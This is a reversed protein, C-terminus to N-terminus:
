LEGFRMCRSVTRYVLYGLGATAISIGVAVYTFTLVYPLNLVYWLMFSVWASLILSYTLLGALVSHARLKYIAMLGVFSPVPSLLDIPGLPSILNGLFVGITLGYVAPMGLIPVLGMLANAVRVQFGMFSIPYLVNTLAAYSAALIAMIAVDKADMGM